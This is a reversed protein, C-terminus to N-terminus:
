WELKQNPPHPDIEKWIHESEQPVTWGPEASAPYEVLDDRGLWPFIKEWLPGKRFFDGRSVLDIM